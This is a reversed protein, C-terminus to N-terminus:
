RRDVDSQGSSTLLKGLLPGAPYSGTLVSSEDRGNLHIVEHFNGFVNKKPFSPQGVDM